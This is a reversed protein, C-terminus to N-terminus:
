DVLQEELELLSPLKPDKMMERADFGLKYLIFATALEGFIFMGCSSDCFFGRTETFGGDLFKCGGSYSSSVMSGHYSVSPERQKGVSGAIERVRDQYKVRVRGGAFVEKITQNMLMSDNM